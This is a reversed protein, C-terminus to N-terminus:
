EGQGVIVAVFEAGVEFCLIIASLWGETTCGDGAM